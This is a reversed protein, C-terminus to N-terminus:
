KVAPKRLPVPEWVEYSIGAIAGIIAGPVAFFGAMFATTGLIGGFYDTSERDGFTALTLGLAGGFAAGRLLGRWAGRGIARRQGRYIRLEGLGATAVAITDSSGEYQVWITDGSARVYTGTLSTPEGRWYLQLRAGPAIDTVL